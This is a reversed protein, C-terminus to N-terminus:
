LGKMSQLLTKKMRVVAKGGAMRRDPKGEMTEMELAVKGTLLYKEM